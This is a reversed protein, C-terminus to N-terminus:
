GPVALEHIFCNLKRCVSYFFDYCITWIRRHIFIVSLPNSLLLPLGAVLQAEKAGPADGFLKTFIIVHLYSAPITEHKPHARLHPKQSFSSLWAKM